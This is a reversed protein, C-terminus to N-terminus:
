GIATYTYAYTYVTTNADHDTHKIMIRQINADDHSMNRTRSGVILTIILITRPKPSAVIMIIIMITIAIIIIVLVTKTQVNKNQHLDEHNNNFTNTINPRRICDPEAPGGSRGRVAQGLPRGKACSAALALASRLRSESSFPSGLVSGSSPGKLLSGTARPLM